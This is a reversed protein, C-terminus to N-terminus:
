SWYASTLIESSFSVPFVVSFFVEVPLFFVEVSVRLDDPDDVVAVDVDVDEDDIHSGVDSVTGDEEVM